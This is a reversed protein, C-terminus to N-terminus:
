VCQCPLLLGRQATFILKVECGQGAATCYTGPKGAELCIQPPANQGTPIYSNTCECEYKNAANLVTNNCQNNTGTCEHGQNMLTADVRSTKGTPDVLSTTSTISTKVFVRIPSPACNLQTEDFCSEFLSNLTQASVCDSPASAHSATAFMCMACAVSFSTSQIIVSISTLCVAHDHSDLRSCAFRAEKHAVFFSKLARM